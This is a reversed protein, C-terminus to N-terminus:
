TSPGLLRVYLNGLTGGRDMYRLGLNAVISGCLSGSTRHPRLSNDAMRWSPLWRSTRYTSGFVVSCLHHCKVKPVFPGTKLTEPAASPSRGAAPM